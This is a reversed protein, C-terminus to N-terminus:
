NASVASAYCIAHYFHFYTSNLLYAQFLTYVICYAQTSIYMCVGTYVYVQVYVQYTDMFLMRHLFNKRIMIIIQSLCLLTILVNGCTIDLGTDKEPPLLQYLVHRPNSLIISSNLNWIISLVIYMKLAVQYTATASRKILSRSLAIKRPQTLFDEGHQPLM